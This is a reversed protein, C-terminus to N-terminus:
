ANQEDWEKKSCIFIFNKGDYEWMIGNALVVDGPKYFGVKGYIRYEQKPKNKEDEQKKFVMNKQEFEMIMGEISGLIPKMEVHNIPTTKTYGLFEGVQYYSKVICVVNCNPVLSSDFTYFTYTGFSFKVRAYHKEM